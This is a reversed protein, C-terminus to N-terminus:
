LGQATVAAGAAMGAVKALFSAEHDENFLKMAAVAANAWVASGSISQL